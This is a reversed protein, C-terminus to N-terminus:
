CNKLTYVYHGLLLCATTDPNFRQCDVPLFVGRLPRLTQAQRQLIGVCIKCQLQGVIAQLQLLQAVVHRARHPDVKDFARDGM